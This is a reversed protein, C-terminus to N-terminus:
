DDCYWELELLAYNHCRSYQKENQVLFEVLLAYYDARAVPAYWNRYMGDQSTTLLSMEACLNAFWDDTGPIKKM